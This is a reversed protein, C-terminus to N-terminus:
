LQTAVAPLSFQRALREIFGEMLGAELPPVMLILRHAGAESFQGVVAPGDMDRTAAVLASIEIRRFDRGAQEVLEGLVKLRGALWQPGDHVAPMWGDGLAAVTELVRQCSGNKSSGILIPPWPKQLPKPYSRVPPFRCFEGEFSPEDESWIQRMARLHERTISWRRHEEVGLVGAEEIVSGLGVGFLFRGDSYLDLSAIMKALSLQQHRAAWCIGTGLKITTTAAAATSLAVFQDPTHAYTEPIFGGNLRVLNAHEVKKEGPPIRM